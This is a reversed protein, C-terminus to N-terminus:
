LNEFLKFWKTHHPLIAAHLMDPNTIVVQGAARVVSRVNAPTDGDYTHTKLGIEAMDALARLEVLQDAALAKTPFLYLARATDNKAVADLVPLNYCLTKGSATPTVVVVNRGASAAAYAAAQHTYPAEIGRRRLADILRPDIGTPWPAHQPPRPVLERHAVILPAVAPDALLSAIAQEANGPPATLM